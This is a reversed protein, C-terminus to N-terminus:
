TAPASRADLQVLHSELRSTSTVDRAVMAVIGDDRVLVATVGSPLYTSRLVDSDDTAATVSGGLEQDDLQQLQSLQSPPGVLLLPLTYEAAQVRVARLIDGCDQCSTPVLVLVAPRAQRLPFTSERGSLTADPLLGGVTGAPLNAPPSALPTQQRTDDSSTGFVSLSSGVLGVVVLLVLLLPGTLGIGPRMGGTARHVARRVPSNALRDADRRSRLERLYTERDADLSRPDDPVLLALGELQDADLDDHRGDPGPLGPM